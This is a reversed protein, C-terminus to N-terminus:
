PMPKRSRSSTSRAADRRKRKNEELSRASLQTGKYNDWIYLGPELGSLLAEKVEPILVSLAHVDASPVGRLLVVPIRYEQFHETEGFDTDITILAGYERKHAEKALEGNSTKDLNVTRAETIQMGRGFKGILPRLVCNDFLVKLM